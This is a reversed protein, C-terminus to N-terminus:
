SDVAGNSRNSPKITYNWEGHFDARVINIAALEEDSVAIGKPYVKDDLKCIVQLGTETTTAAILDIIVKYSVLPKARWNM